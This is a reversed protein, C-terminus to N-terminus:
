RGGEVGIITRAGDERGTQIHRLKIERGGRRVTIARWDRGDFENWFAKPRDDLAVLVDGVRFGSLSASTHPCVLAVEPFTWTMPCPTGGDSSETFCPLLRGRDPMGVSPPMASLGGPPVPLRDGALLFLGWSEDSLARCLRDLHAEVEPNRGLGHRSLELAIRNQIPCQCPPHALHPVLLARADAEFKAMIVELALSRDDHLLGDLLPLSWRDSQELNWVIYRASKPDGDRVSNMWSQRKEAALTRARALQLQAEQDGQDFPEAIFLGITAAVILTSM